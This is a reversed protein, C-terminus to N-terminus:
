LMSRMRGTLSGDESGADGNMTYQQPIQEYIDKHVIPEKDLMNARIYDLQLRVWESLLRNDIDRTEPVAVELWDLIAKATKQDGWDDRIAKSGKPIIQTAIVQGMKGGNYIVRRPIVVEKDIIERIEEESKRELAGAVFHRSLFNGIKREAPNHTHRELVEDLEDGEEQEEDDTPQLQEVTEEQVEYLKKEVEKFEPLEIM